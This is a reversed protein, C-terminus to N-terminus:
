DKSHISEMYELYNLQRSTFLVQQQMFNLMTVELEDLQAM